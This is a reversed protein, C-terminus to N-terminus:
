ALMTHLALVAIVVASAVGTARRGRPGTVARGLVAGGGALLLQWSASAVFAAIV